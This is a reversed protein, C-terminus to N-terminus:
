TEASIRSQQLLCMPMKLPWLRVQSLFPLMPHAADGLLTVNGKSWQTM